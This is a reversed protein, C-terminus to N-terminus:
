GEGEGEGEGGTLDPTGPGAVEGEGEGEGGAVPDAVIPTTDAPLATCAEPLYQAADGITESLKGITEKAIRSCSPAEQSASTRVGDNVAEIFKAKTQDVGGECASPQLVSPCQEGDIARYSAIVTSLVTENIDCAEKVQENPTFSVVGCEGKLFRCCAAVRSCDPLAPEDIGALQTDKCGLQGEVFDDTAKKAADCGFQPGALAVLILSASLAILRHSNM